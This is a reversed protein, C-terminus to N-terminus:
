LHNNTPLTCTAALSELGIVSAVLIVTYAGLEEHYLLATLKRTCHLIKSLVIELSKRVHGSIVDSRVSGTNRPFYRGTFCLHSACISYTSCPHVV